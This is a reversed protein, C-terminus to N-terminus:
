DASGCRGYRAAHSDKSTVRLMYVGKSFNILPISIQNDATGAPIAANYVKAGLTNVITIAVSGSINAGLSVHLSTTAPNPSITTILNSPNYNTTGTNLNCFYSTLFNPLGLNTQTATLM